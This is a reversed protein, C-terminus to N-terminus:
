HYELWCYSYKLANIALKKYIIRKYDDSDCNMPWDMGTIKNGLYSAFEEREFTDFWKIGRQEIYESIQKHNLDFRYWKKMEFKIQEIIIEDM